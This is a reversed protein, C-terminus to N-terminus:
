KERIINSFVNSSINKIQTTQSHKTKHKTPRHTDSGCVLSDVFRSTLFRLKIVLVWSIFSSIFFPWHQWCSTHGLLTVKHGKRRRCTLPEYCRDVDIRELSNDVNITKWKKLYIEALRDHTCFCSMKHYIKDCVFTFLCTLSRSFVHSLCSFIFKTCM